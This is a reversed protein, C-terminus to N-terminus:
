KKNLKNASWPKMKDALFIDCQGEVFLVVKGDQQPHADGGALWQVMIWNCQESFMTPTTLQTLKTNQLKPILNANITHYLICLHFEKYLDFM